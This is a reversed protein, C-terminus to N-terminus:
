KKGKKQANPLGRTTTIVGSLPTHPQNQNLDVRSPILAMTLDFAEELFRPPIEDLYATLGLQELKACATKFLDEWKSLSLPNLHTKVRELRCKLDFSYFFLYEYDVKSAEQALWAASKESPIDNFTSFFQIARALLVKSFERAHQLRAEQPFPEGKTYVALGFQKLKKQCLEYTGKWDTYLSAPLIPKFVELSQLHKASFLAKGASFDVQEQKQSPEILNILDNKSSVHSKALFSVLLNQHLTWNVEAVALLKFKNRQFLRDNALIAQLGLLHVISEFGRILVPKLIADDITPQSLASPAGGIQALSSPEPPVRLPHTMHHVLACVGPSLNYPTETLYYELREAYLITLCKKYFCQLLRLKGPDFAQQCDKCSQLYLANFFPFRYPQERLASQRQLWEARYTKLSILTKFFDICYDLLESQLNSPKSKIKEEAIEIDDTTLELKQLKSLTNAFTTQWAIFSKEPILNLIAARNENLYGQLNCAFMLPYCYNPEEGKKDLWNRVTKSNEPLSNLETFFAYSSELENLIRHHNVDTSARAAADVVFPEQLPIPPNVIETQLLPTSPTSLPVEQAKSSPPHTIKDAFVASVTKTPDLNPNSAQDTSKAPRPPTIRTAFVASRVEPSDFSLLRAFAGPITWLLASFFYVTTKISLSVWSANGATEPKQVLYFKEGRQEIKERGFFFQVYWLSGNAFTNLGDDSKLIAETLLFTKFTNWSRQIAM